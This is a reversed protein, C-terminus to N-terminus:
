GYLCDVLAPTLMGEFNNYSIDIWTLMTLNKIEPSIKETFRNTSLLFFQLQKCKFQGSPITGSFYNGIQFCM